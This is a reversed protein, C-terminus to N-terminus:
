TTDISLVRREVYMITLKQSIYIMYPYLYRTPKSIGTPLVTRVAHKESPDGSSPLPGRTLIYHIAARWSKITASSLKITSESM